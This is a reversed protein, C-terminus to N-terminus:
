CSSAPAPRARPGTARDALLPRDRRYRGVVGFVDDTSRACRARGRHRPHAARRPEKFRRREGSPSRALDGSTRADLSAAAGPPQRTPRPRVARPADQVAAPPASTTPPARQAGDRLPEAPTTARAVRGRGVISRRQRDCCRRGDRRGAGADGPAPQPRAALREPARAEAAIGSGGASLRRRCRRRARRRVGGRADARLEALAAAARRHRRLEPGVPEGALAAELADLEREVQPDLTDDDRRLSM